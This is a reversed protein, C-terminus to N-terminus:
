AYLDARTLPLSSRGEIPKAFLTQHVGIRGVDFGRASAAMYLRWIRYTVEDAAAVAEERRAELRQVWHRLTLAYHERLSEVDRVEFGAREAVLGAETVPVLEGDPFVYQQLFMGSGLLRREIWARWGPRPTAPSRSIGHNLFVGGPKLLRYVHGFYEPLHDRGVHEFMGVSVIKDFSEGSLDRYDQLKVRARDELGSAAIREAALAAQKKSLTVGLAYVGYERAAYM